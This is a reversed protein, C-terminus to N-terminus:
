KGAKSLAVLDKSLQSLVKKVERCKARVRRSAAANGKELAKQLDKGTGELEVLLEAWLGLLEETTKLTTDSM